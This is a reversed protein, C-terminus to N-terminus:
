KGFPSTHGQAAESQLNLIAECVAVGIAGGVYLDTELQADYGRESLESPVLRPSSEPRAVFVWRDTDVVRRADLTLRSFGRAYLARAQDLVDEFIEQTEFNVKNKM